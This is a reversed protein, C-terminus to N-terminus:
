LTSFFKKEKRRIQNRQSFFFLVIIIILHLWNKVNAFNVNEIVMLHLRQFMERFVTKTCNRAAKRIINELCTLFM